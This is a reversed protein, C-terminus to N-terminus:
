HQFREALVAAEASTLRMIKDNRDRHLRGLSEIGDQGETYRYPGLDQTTLPTVIETQIDAFTLRYADKKKTNDRVQPVTIAEFSTLTGVAYLASKSEPSDGLWIYLTEGADKSGLEASKMRPVIATTDGLADASLKLVLAM